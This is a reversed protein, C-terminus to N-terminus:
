SRWSADKAFTPLREMDSDVRPISKLLEQTYPHTSKEIDAAKVKEVIKGKYLVLINECYKKVLPLDHSIFILKMGYQNIKEQILGLIEHKLCADLASTPEDAILLKPRMAIMMAIMIRQGMGGSIEHPYLDLVRKPNDIHVDRLAQLVLDTTDQRHNKNVLFVEQIQEKVTMVPNLSARPDQLIMSVHQQNILAKQKNPALLDEGDLTMQDAKVTATVPVLGLMSKMLMSKGSGSEGVIGLKQSEMSFTIDHLAQTTGSTNSFYLNLNKVEIFNM